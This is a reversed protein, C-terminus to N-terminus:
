SRDRGRKAQKGKVRRFQEAKPCDSFHSSFFSLTGVGACEACHGPNDGHCLGCPVKKETAKSLPMKFPEGDSKRKGAFFYIEADCKRCRCVREISPDLQFMRDPYGSRDVKPKPHRQSSSM